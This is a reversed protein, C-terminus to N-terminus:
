FNCCWLPHTANCNSARYDWVAKYTTGGVDSVAGNGTTVTYPDSHGGCPGVSPEHVWGLRDVITNLSGLQSMEGFHWGAGFEAACKAHAGSLGGLDGSYSQWTRKCIPTTGAGGSAGVVSIASDVYAKTAVNNDAVPPAATMTGDSTIPGNSVIADATVTGNVTVDGGTITPAANDCQIQSGDSRCLRNSILTGVEPDDETTIAGGAVGETQDPVCQWSGGATDTWVLKANTLHCYPPVAGNTAHPGVSPDAEDVCAWATGTWQLMRGDGDCLVIPAKAHPDIDALEHEAADIRDGHDTLTAGIGDLRSEHGDIRTELEADKAVLDAKMKTTLAQLRAIGAQGRAMGSTGYVVGQAFAATPLLMLALCVGKFAFRM